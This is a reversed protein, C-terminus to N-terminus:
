CPVYVPLSRRHPHSAAAKLPRRARLARALPDGRKRESFTSTASPSTGPKPVSTSAHTTTSRRASSACCRRRRRSARGARARPPARTVRPPLVVVADAAGRVEELARAALARVAAGDEPAAVLDALFGASIGHKYTHGVVAVGVLEGARYARSAATTARRTSTAGTSTRPTARSTAETGRRSGPQRARGYGRRLTGRAPGRARPDRARGLNSPADDRARGDSRARLARRGLPAASAGMAAPAAPRALRPAARLDSVVEREPVDGHAPLGLGVGRDRERARADLLRGARPLRADTAVNVPIALLREVGELRMRFFSMAAVGVVEGGDVALSVIGEGAPNRDFWWAFEEDSLHTTGVRALLSVLSARWEPTYRVVEFSM